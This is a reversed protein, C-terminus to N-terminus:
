NFMAIKSQPVITFYLFNKVLLFFSLKWYMKFILSVQNNLNIISFLLHLNCHCIFLSVEMMTYHMNLKLQNFSFVLVQLYTPYGYSFNFPRNMLNLYFNPM